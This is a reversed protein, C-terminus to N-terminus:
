IKNTLLRFVDSGLYLFKEGGITQFIDGIKFQPSFRMKILVYPKFLRLYQRIFFYKIKELYKEM